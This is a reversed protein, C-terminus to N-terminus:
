IQYKLFLQGQAAADLEGTMETHSTDGPDHADGGHDYHKM